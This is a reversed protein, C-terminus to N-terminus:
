HKRFFSFLRSLAISIAAVCSAFIWADLPPYYINSFSFSIMNLLPFTVYILSMYLFGFLLIAFLLTKGPPKNQALLFSCVAIAAPNIFYLFLIIFGNPDMFSLTLWFILATVLAIFTYISVYRFMISGRQMLQVLANM